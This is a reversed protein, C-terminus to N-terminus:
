EDEEDQDDDQDANPNKIKGTYPDGVPTKNPSPKDEKGDVTKVEPEYDDLEAPETEEEPEVEREFLTM